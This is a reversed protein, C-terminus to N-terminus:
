EKEILLLPGGPTYERANEWFDDWMPSKQILEIKSLGAIKSLPLEGYLIEDETCELAAMETKAFVAVLYPKNHINVLDKSFVVNDSSPTVRM